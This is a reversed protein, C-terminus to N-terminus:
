YISRKWGAWEQFLLSEVYKVPQSAGQAAWDLLSQTIENTAENDRIWIKGCPYKEDRIVTKNNVVFVRHVKPVAACLPTIEKFPSKVSLAMKEKLSVVEQESLSEILVFEPHKKSDRYKVEGENTVLVQQYGFEDLESVNLRLLLENGYVHGALALGLGWYMLFKTKM